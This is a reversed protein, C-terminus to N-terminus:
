GGKRGGGAGGGGGGAGRRGFQPMFPNKADEAAQEPRIEGIVVPTGDKLEDSTIETNTGDTRGVKVRISKVYPGDQVWVMGARRDAGGGEPRKGKGGAAPNTTPGAKAGGAADPTIQDSSSPVWRLAVNPVLAVNERREVEFQVNATLYPLLANDSNDANIEVTYTVVNQTMTANLRVKGVVGKFTRGTFADVTFTAPQDARISGIDAENVSAWVQMRTLDKAILFLSPANLSSVVTQGVNVRRDIIVGKVPSVITCYGLNRKARLLTADAQTVTTKVQDIAAKSVAVSAKATEYAAEFGDYDAQSMVGKAVDKARTWDRDAQVYKAQSQNLDAEARAVSAKASLLQAQATDVDAQYLADDIKALVTGENVATRYDISKGNNAPDKGFTLIQGAVQAGVDVVEEPEITGTAGITALLDGHKVPVTRYTLAGSDGRHTYWSWATAGLGLVIVVILVKVFTSM